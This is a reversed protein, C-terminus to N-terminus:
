EQDAEDLAEKLLDRLASGDLQSLRTTPPVRVTGSWGDSQREFTLRSAGWEPHALYVRYMEGGVAIWLRTPETM